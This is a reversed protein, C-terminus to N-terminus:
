RLVGAIRLRQLAREALKKSRELEQKRREAHLRADRLAAENERLTREVRAALADSHTTMQKATDAREYPVDVM